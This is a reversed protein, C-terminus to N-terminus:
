AREFRVAASRAHADLGEIRGFAEIAARTARLDAQTFQVFSTRRRFDDVTLGAFMAATGGTPLVHSPGAVYDGAAEPTWPGVFVAGACRVRKRWAAANRVMLELHEPAFRNCLDMGAALDDVVALLLGQPIMREIAERRSLTRAQRGVERRVAEALALSPTVLLAKEHGTGHEAQSLLDAAVHSAVASDDALVAIESPGAVLDLAVDGYVLRKAATVYAGGPGVIKQVKRITETGYAMLGIAQIGGVRYVETAGALSLAHLLVPNVRGDGGCPTCAVIEPVGAVQALTATMLATSALPAAGGPVYVGVRDLPAFQEGLRGGRGSPMSWDKKLGAKAFAAIRQHASQVAGRTVADVRREAQGLERGDIRWEAPKLPVRDFKRVWRAVARNGNERIDALVRAATREASRDFPPRRLFAELRASVRGRTLVEIGPEVNSMIVVM